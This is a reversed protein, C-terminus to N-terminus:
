NSILQKCSKITTLDPSESILCEYKQRSVFPEKACFQVPLTLTKEYLEDLFKVIENKEEIKVM